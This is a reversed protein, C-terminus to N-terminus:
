KWLLYILGQAVAIALAWIRANRWFPTAENSEKDALRSQPILLLWALLALFVTAFALRGALPAAAALLCPLLALNIV